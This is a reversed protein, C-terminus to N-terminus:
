HDVTTTHTHDPSQASDRGKKKKKERMQNVVREEM